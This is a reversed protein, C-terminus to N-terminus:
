NALNNDVPLGPCYQVLTISFPASAGAKITTAGLPADVPLEVQLSNAFANLVYASKTGVVVAIGTSNGLNTGNVFSIGGPCLATSGSENTVSTIAPAQAQLLATGAFALCLSLLNRKM